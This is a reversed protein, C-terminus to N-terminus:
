VNYTLDAFTLIERGTHKESQFLNGAHLLLYVDPAETTYHEPWEGKM